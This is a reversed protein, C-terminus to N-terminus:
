GEQPLLRLLVRRITAGQVLISFLVVVYTCALILPKERIPPLSLALAVSIGGRLGAWTLIRVVAPTFEASRRLLRIPVWVSVLRALLVIAVSALGAYIRQPAFAVMLVEIGILLFLVANLIEDILEWFKELYDAVTESMAFRRGRRFSAGLASGELLVIPGLFWSSRWVYLGPVVLAALGLLTLLRNVFFLLLFSFGRRLTARAVTGFTVSPSFVLHGVTTYLPLSFISAVLPVLTLVWAPHLRLGWLGLAGLGATCISYFAWASLIPGPRTQVMRAALAVLEGSTRAKIEVQLENLKM